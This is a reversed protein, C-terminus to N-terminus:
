GANVSAAPSDTEEETRQTTRQLVRLGSRALAPEIWLLLEQTDPQRWGPGGAGHCRRCLQNLGWCERCAGLTEAAFEIMEAAVDLDARLSGIRRKAAALRNELNEIRKDQDSEGNGTAMQSLLTSMLPDVGAGDGATAEAAAGGNQGALQKTLLAMMAPNM